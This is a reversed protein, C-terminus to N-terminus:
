KNNNYFNRSTEQGLLKNNSQLNTIELCFYRSMYRFEAMKDFMDVALTSKEKIVKHLLPFALMAKTMDIM